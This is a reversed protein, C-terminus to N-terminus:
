MRGGGRARTRTHKSRAAALLGTESASAFVFFIKKKKREGLRAPLLATAMLLKQRHNASSTRQQVRCLIMDGKIELQHLLPRLEPQHPRRKSHQHQQM